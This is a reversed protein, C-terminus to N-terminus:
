PEERSPLEVDPGLNGNSEPREAPESSYHLLGALQTLSLDAAVRLRRLEPGFSVCQETM